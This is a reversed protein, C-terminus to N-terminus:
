REDIEEGTNAPGHRFQHLQTLKVQNCLICKNFSWQLDNAFNQNGTKCHHDRLTSRAIKLSCDDLSEFLKANRNSVWCKFIIKGILYIINQPKFSTVMLIITMTM